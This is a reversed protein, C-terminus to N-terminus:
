VRKSVISPCQPMTHLAGPRHASEWYGSKLQGLCYWEQRFGSNFPAPLCLSRLTDGRGYLFDDSPHCEMEPPLKQVGM